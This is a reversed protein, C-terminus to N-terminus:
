PAQPERELYWRTKESITAPAHGPGASAFRQGVLDIVLNLGQMTRAGLLTLDGPEGFVIEDSTRTGGAHVIAFGIHRTVSRGDATTYTVQKELKIGLAELAETPAWSLEAGTDVLARPLTVRVGPTQPNEIAIDTYLIGM